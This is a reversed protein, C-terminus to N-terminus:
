PCGSPPNAPGRAAIWGEVPVNVDLYWPVALSGWRAPRFTWCSVIKRAAAFHASQGGLPRTDIAQGKDGVLVRLRVSEGDAPGSPSDLIEPPKVQRDLYEEPHNPFPAFKNIQLSFIVDVLTAFPTPGDRTKFPRFLWNRVSRLASAALIPHGALVHAERVEGEPSVLVQLRVSGQIFNLKAVPPYEPQDHSKLLKSAAKSDLRTPTPRSTQARAGLATCLFGAALVWVESHRATKGL